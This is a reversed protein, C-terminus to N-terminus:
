RSESIVLPSILFLTFIFSASKIIIVFYQLPIIGLSPIIFLSALFAGFAGGILDSAFLIGVTETIRREKGLYLFNGLPFQFGLFLGIFFVSSSILAEGKIGSIPLQALILIFFAFLIILTENILLLIVPSTRRRGKPTIQTKEAYDADKLFLLSFLGGVVAGLIFITLLLTIRHFIFGFHIQFLFILIINQVMGWFGTSFIIFPLFIRKRRKSLIGILFVVLSPILLSILYTEFKIHEIGQYIRPLKASSVGTLYTLSKLFGKPKLDQNMEKHSTTEALIKEFSSSYFPSLRIKLYQPSFIQTVVRKKQLRLVFTDLSLSQDEQSAIYINIDGFIPYIYPFVGKLTFYHSLILNKLADSTYSLSSPSITILNGKPNLRSRCEAYFEKTFYRNFNLTLPSLYNIIIIDYPGGKSLFNRGDQYFLNVRKDKLEAETIPLKLEKYAKIIEPDLELYDLRAIPHKLIERILGGLGQGILLISKPQPHSLLSFHALDENFSIDPNPVTFIPFGDYFLTYEDRQAITTINGYVTNKYHVIKEKGWWLSLFERRWKPEIILLLSFILFLFLSLGFYATARLPIFRKINLNLLLLTFFNLSSILFAIQFSSFFPILLFYLLLGGIITGGNEL